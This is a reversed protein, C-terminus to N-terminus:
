PRLGLFVCIYLAAQAGKRCWLQAAADAVLNAIRLPSSLVERWYTHSSPSTIEEESHLLSNWSTTAVRAVASVSPRCLERSLVSVVVQHPDVSPVGRVVQSGCSRSLSVLEKGLRLGAEGQDGVM